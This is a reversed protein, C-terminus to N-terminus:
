IKQLWGKKPEFVDGSRKLKDIAEELKQETIGKDFVKPKLDEEISIPGQKEECMNFVLNRVEIIRSRVSATIGSTIRDMDVQGTEPDVGIEAMCGKLLNIARTADEKEV